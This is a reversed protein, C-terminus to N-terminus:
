MFTCALKLGYVRKNSASTDTPEAVINFQFGGGHSSLSFLGVLGVKHGEPHLTGKCVGGGGGGEGKM